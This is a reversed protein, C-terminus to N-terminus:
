REQVVRVCAVPVAYGCSLEAYMRKLETGPVTDEYLKRLLVSREVVTNDRLDIVDVLDGVCLITSV